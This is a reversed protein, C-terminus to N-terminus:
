RASRARELKLAESKVLASRAGGTSCTRMEREHIFLAMRSAKLLRDRM